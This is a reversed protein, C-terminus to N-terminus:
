PIAQRRVIVRRDSWLFWAYSCAQLGAVIAFAMRYAAAPPMGAAAGADVLIGVAWQLGFAGLIAALNIATNVRGALQAPFDSSLLAYALNGISFALGMAMWLALPPLAQGIILGMVLIGFGMGYRYLALPPIGIRELRGVMSSIGVFGLIMAVGMGSLQRAAADRTLGNVHMLWPVVWLGQLAM